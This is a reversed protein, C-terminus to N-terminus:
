NENVLSEEDQSSKRKGSKGGKTVVSKQRQINLKRVNGQKPNKTV